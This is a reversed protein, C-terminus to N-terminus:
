LKIQAVGYRAHEREAKKRKQEKAEQQKPTDGQKHIPLRFRGSDHMGSMIYLLTTDICLDTEKEVIKAIELAKKFVNATHEAGHDTNEM